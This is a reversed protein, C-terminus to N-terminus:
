AAIVSQGRPPITPGWPVLSGAEIACRALGPHMRVYLRTIRSGLQRTPGPVGILITRHAHGAVFEVRDEAPERDAQQIDFAFPVAKGGPM